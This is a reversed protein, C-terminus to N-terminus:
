RVQPLGGLLRLLDRQSETRTKRFIAELQTRLTSIKVGRKEAIEEASRGAALAAVVKTEAASLGFLQALM